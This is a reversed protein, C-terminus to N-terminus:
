ILVINISAIQENNKKGGSVTISTIYFKDGTQLQGIIKRQEESLKNGKNKLTIVKNSGSKIFVTEFSLIRYDIQPGEPATAILESMSQAKSRSLPVNGKYLEKKGKDTYVVYPIPDPLEKVAYDYRALTEKGNSVTISAAQARNDPIALYQGNREIVKGHQMTVKLNQKPVGISIFHLRNECEKYLTSTLEPTIQVMPVKITGNPLVDTPEGNIFIQDEGIVTIGPQPEPRKGDGEILAQLTEKQCTLLEQEMKDLVAIGANAPLYSFTEKEWSFGSKEPTVDLYSSILNKREENGILGSILEKYSQINEKLSKGRGASLMVDSVANLEDKNALKGKQYKDRDAAQAIKEKLENLEQRIAETKENIESGAAQQDPRKEELRALLNANYAQLRAIQPHYDNSLLDYGELADKSINIGLMAILVVYILNIMKQRPPMVYKSM